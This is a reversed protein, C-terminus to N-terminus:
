SWGGKGPWGRGIPAEVREGGRKGLRDDAAQASGKGRRDPRSGWPLRGASLLKRALRSASRV